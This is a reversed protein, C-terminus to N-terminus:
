TPGASSSQHRRGPMLLRRLWLLVFIGFLLAGAILLPHKEWLLIPSIRDQWVAIFDGATAQAPEGPPRLMMEVAAMQDSSAVIADRIRAPALLQIKAPQEAVASMIIARPGPQLGTIYSALAKLEEGSLTRSLTMLKTSELEFLVDRAERNIGALKPIAIGDKLNLVRQLTAKSFSEPTAHKHIAYEVVADLNDGALASWAIANDISRTERAIVLGPEPLENIAVGLTGNDLRKLIGAEGEAGLVLSTIEDLRPLAAPKITELFSKFALNRDALELARAHAQRFEQWVEVVRGAAKTGIDQVHIGIEEQLSKALEERVKKKTEPSKMEDSVIPLVGHRLDWIDKALLVLGIGGAVVSVLRALISGVVRQGIRQAMNALQRRMLLIAAGTIGQGSQKLVAGPSVEAGGKSADANFEQGATGTVQAAVASGYRPGLFTKLCELAPGSADQTAVEISKGVETGVGTALASIASQMAESKYVKDAVAVALEQAKQQDALSKVLSGFSTESRVEEVAIDVRKDIIADIGLRQWQTSVATEYDVGKLGGTLAAITVQEIALKFAQDDGAQCAQYDVATTSAATAPLQACPALIVALATVCSLAPRLNLPM